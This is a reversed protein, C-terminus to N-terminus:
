YLTYSFYLLLINVIYVGSCIICYNKLKFYSVYMLYFTMFISALSLYFVLATHGFLALLGLVPYYFLGKISNAIGGLRSYDSKAAASCSISDSIDCVAKYNKNKEIKKEIYFSYLSFLFGFLSIIIISQM